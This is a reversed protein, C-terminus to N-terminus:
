NYRANLQLDYKNKDDDQCEGMGSGNWGSFSFDCHLTSGDKATAILNGDSLAAGEAAVGAFPSAREVYAFTGKYVKHNLNITVARSWRDASGTAIEGSDRNRLTLDAGTVCGTLLVAVCSFLLRHKKM